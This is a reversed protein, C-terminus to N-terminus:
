RTCKQAYAVAQDLTLCYRRTVLCGSDMDTLTVVFAFGRHDCDSVRALMGTDTNKFEM